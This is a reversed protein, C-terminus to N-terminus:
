ISIHKIIKKEDARVQIAERNHLNDLLKESHTDMINGLEIYSDSNPSITYLSGNSSVFIYSPTRESVSPFHIDHVGSINSLESIILNIDVNCVNERKKNLGSFHWYQYIYWQKVNPYHKIEKAIRYLQEKEEPFWVTNIKIPINAGLLTKMKSTVTKFHGPYCRIQDHLSCDGDLPIGIIDVLPFLQTIKTSDLGILNTDVHKQFKYKQCYKLLDWFDKYKFPDGGGFTVIDPCYLAIKDIIQIWDKLEGPKPDCFPIYCFPCSM